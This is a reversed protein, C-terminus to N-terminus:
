RRFGRHFCLAGIVACALTFLLLSIAAGNTWWVPGVPMM